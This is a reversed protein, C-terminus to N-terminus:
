DMRRGHRRRKAQRVQLEELLARTTRLEEEVTRQFEEAQQRLREVCVLLTEPKDSPSWHTRPIDSTVTQKARGNPLRSCTPLSTVSFGITRMARTGSCGRSFNRTWVAAAPAPRRRLTLPRRPFRTRPRFSVPTRDNWSARWHRMHLPNCLPNRDQRVPIRKFEVDRSTPQPLTKTTVEGFLTQRRDDTANALM